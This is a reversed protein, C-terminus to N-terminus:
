ATTNSANALSALVCSWGGPSDCMARMAEAKDEFRELKRHELEVRTGDPVEVLGVDM